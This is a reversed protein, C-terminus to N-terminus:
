PDQERRQESEKPRLCAGPLESRRIAQRFMLMSEGVM